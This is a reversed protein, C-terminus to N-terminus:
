VGGFPTAVKVDRNDGHGSTDVRCGSVVILSLVATSLIWQRTGM